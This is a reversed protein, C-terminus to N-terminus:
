WFMGDILGASDQCKSAYKVHSQFSTIMEM